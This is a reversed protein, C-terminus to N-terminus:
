EAMEDKTIRGYIPGRCIPCANVHSACGGCMYFHGCPNVIVSKKETMCIACDDTTTDEFIKIEEARMTVGGADNLVEIGTKVSYYYRGRNTILSVHRRPVRYKRGVVRIDRPFM